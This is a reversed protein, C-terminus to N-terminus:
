QAVQGVLVFGTGSQPMFILGYNNLGVERALQHLQSESYFYVQCDQWRYRLRRFHMRLLSQGPFSALVIKKSLNVMKNLVIHPQSIYDFFGMALVVDFQHKFELELFDGQLLECRDRVGEKVLLDQALGLMENSFDVGVVQRAGRKAYEVM